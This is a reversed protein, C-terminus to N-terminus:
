SRKSLFIKSSLIQCNLPSNQHCVLKATVAQGCIPCTQVDNDSSSFSGKVLYCPNAKHGKGNHVRPSDNLLVPIGLQNFGSIGPLKLYNCDSNSNQVTDIQDYTTYFLNSNM